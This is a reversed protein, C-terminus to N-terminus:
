DEETPVGNADTDSGDVELQAQAQVPNKEAPGDVEGRAIAEAQEEGSDEVNRDIAYLSVGNPLNVLRVGMTSRSSPRIQSVETRIVGGASTIAM